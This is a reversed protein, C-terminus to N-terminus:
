LPKGALVMKGTPQPVGGHPEITVAFQLVGGKYSMQSVTIVATGNSGPEFVAASVPGQNGIVWLQYSKGAALPPLSNVYFIGRSVDPNWVIKARAQPAAELGTLLALQVSPDRLWAIERGQDSLQKQMVAIERDRESLQDRQWLLAAALAVVAIAAAIAWVRRWRIAAGGAGIEKELRSRTREKLGSPLPVGSLGYPLLSSTDNFSRLEEDCLECGQQLHLELREREKGSLAGLSYLPILELYDHEFM